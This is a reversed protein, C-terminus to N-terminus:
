QKMADYICTFTRCVQHHHVTTNAQVHADKATIEIWPRKKDPEVAVRREAHDPEPEEHVVSIHQDLGYISAWHLNEVSFVDLVTPIHNSTMDLQLVVDTSSKGGRCIQTCM